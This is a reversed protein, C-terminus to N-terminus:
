DTSPVAILKLFRDRDVWVQEMLSLEGSEAKFYYTRDADLRLPFHGANNTVVSCVPEMNEDFVNVSIRPLEEGPAYLGNEDADNFLLGYLDVKREDEVPKARTGAYFSIVGLDLDEGGSVSAALGCQDTKSSFVTAGKPWTNLENLLLVTFLESIAADHMDKNLGSAVEAVQIVEGGYGSAADADEDSEPCPGALMCEVRSRAASYLFPEMFVPPYKGAFLFFAKSNETLIDLLSRNIFSQIKWPEFRVQNVLNLLRGDSILASSGLCFTFFWANVSDELRGSQISVGAYLYDSALIYRFSTENLEKEFQSRIFIDSATENSMFNVFTVKGTKEATSMYVPDPDADSVGSGIESARLNLHGDMFYPALNTEPFISRSALFEESYGLEQAYAYPSQRIQNVRDLFFVERSTDPESPESKSPDPAADAYVFSGARAITLFVILIAYIHKM